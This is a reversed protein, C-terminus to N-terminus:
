KPIDCKSNSMNTSNTGNPRSILVFQAAQRKALRSVTGQPMDYQTCTPSFFLLRKTMCTYRAQRMNANLEATQAM